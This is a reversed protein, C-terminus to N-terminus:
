NNSLYCSCSCRSTFSYSSLLVTQSLFLFFAFAMDELRRNRESLRKDRINSERQRTGQDRTRSRRNRKLERSTNKSPSVISLVLQLNPDITPTWPNPGFGKPVIVM